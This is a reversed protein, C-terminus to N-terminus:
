VTAEGVPPVIADQIAKRDAWISTVLKVIGEHGLVNLGASIVSQILASAIISVSVSQEVVGEWIFFAIFAAGLVFLATFRSVKSYFSLRKLILTAVYLVVSVILVHVVYLTISFNLL